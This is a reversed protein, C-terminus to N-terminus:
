RRERRVSVRPAAKAKPADSGKKSAKERKPAPAAKAEGAEEERDRGVKKSNRRVSVVKTDEKEEVVALATDAAAAGTDEAVLGRTSDWLNDDFAKLQGEIRAQEAQMASDTPCYQSLTRGLMNTTKYIDGKYMRSVFYDDANLNSTNNLDSTMVPLRTLYPALDNYDLWFMPSKVIDM